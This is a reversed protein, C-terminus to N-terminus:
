LQSNSDWEHCTTSSVFKYLLTQWHSVIPRHNGGDIFSVAVIYITSLTTLCWLGVMGFEIFIIGLCFRFWEKKTFLNTLNCPLCNSLNIINWEDMFFNLVCKWGYSHTFINFVVFDCNHFKIKNQIYLTYSLWNPWPYCNALNPHLCGSICTSYIWNQQFSPKM